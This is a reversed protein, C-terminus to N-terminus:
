AEGGRRMTGGGEADGGGSSIVHGLAAPVPLKLLKYLNSLNRRYLRDFSSVSHSPNYDGFWWFWDSGECDGLQHEAAEKEKSNLRGDSMVTDYHQKAECLLDWARNKAPDGIWTSFNGFVWSGATISPMNEPVINAGHFSELELLEENESITACHQAVESFTAMEIHPHNALAEYLDTLFYYGNYPFHEWANEGDM